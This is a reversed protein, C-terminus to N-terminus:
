WYSGAWFTDRIPMNTETRRLLFAARMADIGREFEAQHLAFWKDNGDDKYASALMGELLVWDWNPGFVPTDGGALAAPYTVCEARLSITGNPTPFLEITNNRLRYTYPSDGTDSRLQGWLWQAGAGENPILRRDNTVDYVWNVAWVDAPLSASRTGGTVSITQESSELWPWLPSAGNIKGYAQNAYSLWQGTSVIANTSDRFRAAAQVGITAATTM